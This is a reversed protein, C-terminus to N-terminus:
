RHRSKHRRRPVGGHSPTPQPLSSPYCRTPEDLAARLLSYRSRRMVAPLGVAQARRRQVLLGVRVTPVARVGHRPKAVYNTRGAATQPPAICRFSSRLAAPASVLRHAQHEPRRPTTPFAPKTRVGNFPTLPAGLSPEM